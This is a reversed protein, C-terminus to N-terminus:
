KVRNFMIIFTAELYLVATEEILIIKRSSRWYSTVTLRVISEQSRVGPSFLFLVCFHEGVDGYM